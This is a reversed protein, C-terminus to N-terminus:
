RRMVGAAAGCCCWRAQLNCETYLVALPTTVLFLGLSLLGRVPAGDVAREYGPLKCRCYIVGEVVISSPYQPPPPPPPPEIAIPPLAQPPVATSRREAEIGNAPSALLAVGALLVVALPLGASNRMKERGRERTM